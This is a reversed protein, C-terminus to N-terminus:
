ANKLIADFGAFFSVAQMHSKYWRNLYRYMEIAAARKVEDDMNQNRVWTAVASRVLEEECGPRCKLAMLKAQVKGIANNFKRTGINKEIIESNRDIQKM